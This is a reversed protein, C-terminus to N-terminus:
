LKQEEDSTTAVLVDIKEGKESLFFSLPVLWKFFPFIAPFVFLSKRGQFGKLKATKKKVEM